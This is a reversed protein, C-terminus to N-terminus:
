GAWSLPLVSVGCTPEAVVLITLLRLENKIWVLLGVISLGIAALRVKWLRRCFAVFGIQNSPRRAPAATVGIVQATM